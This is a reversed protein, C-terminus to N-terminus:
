ASKRENTRVVFVTAGIAGIAIDLYHCTFYGLILAYLLVVFISMFLKAKPALKYSIHAVAYGALLESIVLIALAKWPTMPFDSFENTTLKGMVVVFKVVFLIGWAAFFPVVIAGLMRFITKATMRHNDVCKNENQEADSHGICHEQATASYQTEMKKDKRIRMIGFVPRATNSFYYSINNEGNVLNRFGAISCM